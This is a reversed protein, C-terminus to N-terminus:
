RGCQGTVSKTSCLIFPKISYKWLKGAILYNTIEFCVKLSIDAGTM